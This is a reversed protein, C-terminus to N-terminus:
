KNQQAAPAPNLKGDAQAPGKLAPDKLLDEELQRLARLKPGKVDAEAPLKRACNEKGTIESDPLWYSMETCGTIDFEDAPISPIYHFSIPVCVNRSLYFKFVTDKGKIEIVGNDETKTQFKLEGAGEELIATIIATKGESSVSKMKEINHQLREQEPQFKMKEEIVKYISPQIRGKPSQYIAQYIPLYKFEKALQDCYKYDISNAYISVSSLFIIAFFMQKM